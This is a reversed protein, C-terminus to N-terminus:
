GVLTNLSLRRGIRRTHRRHTVLFWAHQERRGLTAQYDKVKSSALFQAIVVHALARHYFDDRPPNRDLGGLLGDLAFGSCQHRKVRALAMRQM